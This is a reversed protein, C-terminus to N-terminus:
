RKRRGDQGGERRGGEREREMEGGRERQPKVDQGQELRRELLQRMWFVKQLPTSSSQTSKQTSVVSITRLHAPLMNMWCSTILLHQWPGSSLLLYSPFSSSLPLSVCISCVTPPFIRRSLPFFILPLIFLSLFLLHPPSLQSLLVHFLWPLNESCRWNFEELSVTKTLFVEIHWHADETGARNLAM